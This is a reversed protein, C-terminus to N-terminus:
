NLINNKNNHWDIFGQVADWIAQGLIPNRSSSIKGLSISHEGVRGIYVSYDLRYSIIPKTCDLDEIDYDILKLQQNQIEFDYYEGDKELTKIQAIYFLINMINWGKHFNIEHEYLIKTGKVLPILIPNGMCNYIKGRKYTFPQGYRDDPDNNDTSNLMIVRNKKWINNAEKFGLLKAIRINGFEIEEPTMNINQPGNLTRYFSM